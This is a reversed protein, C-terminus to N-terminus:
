ATPKVPVVAAAIKRRRWVSYEHLLIFLVIILLVILLLMGIFASMDMSWGAIEIFVPLEVVVESVEGGTVTATATKEKGGYSVKVTYSGAPLEDSFTGDAATTGKIPTGELMVEAGALGQGRQGVVKVKIVGIKDVIVTNETVTVGTKTFDVTMGKWKHVTVDVTGLPVETIAVTGDSGVVTKIETGDKKKLTIDAGAMPTDFPTKVAVVMDYVDTTILYEVSVTAGAEFKGAEIRISQEAIVGVGEWEVVVKYEGEPAQPVEVPSEPSRFGTMEEITDKNMVLRVVGQEDPKHKTVVKDPWYITVTIPDYSSLKEGDADRIKLLAGYVRTKITASNPYETGSPSFWRPVMEDALSDYIDLARPIIGAFDLFYTDRWYIKIEYPGDAVHLVVRGYEDTFAFTSPHIQGQPIALVLMDKLPNGTWDEVTLKIYGWELEICEEANNHEEGFEFWGSELTEIEATMVDEPTLDYPELMGEYNQRTKFQYSLWRCVNGDVDFKWAIVGGAVPLSEGNPLTISAGKEPKIVAKGDADTLVGDEWDILTDYVDVNASGDWDKGWVELYILQGELPVLNSHFDHGYVVVCFGDMMLTHVIKAAGSWYTMNWCDGAYWTNNGRFEYWVGELKKFWAPYYECPEDTVKSATHNWNVRYGFISHDVVYNVSTTIDECWPTGVVGPTGWKEGALVEVYTIESGFKIDVDTYASDRPQWVPVTVVIVGDATGDDEDLTSWAYAAAQGVWGETVINDYNDPDSIFTLNLVDERILTLNLNPAMYLGANSITYVTLTQTWTVLEIKPKGECAAVGKITLIPHTKHLGDDEDWWTWDYDTSEFGEVVEYEGTTENFIYTVDQDPRPLEVTYNFVLVGGHFVMWKYKAGAIFLHPYEKVYQRSTYVFKAEPIGNFHGTDGEGTLNIIKYTVRVDPECCGPPGCTPPELQYEDDVLAVVVPYVGMDTKIETLINYAHDVAWLDFSYIWVPRKGIATCTGAAQLDEAYPGIDWIVDEHLDGLFVLINNDKTGRTYPTHTEDNADNYDGDGNDDWPGTYVVLTINGGEFPVLPVKEFSVVGDCDSRSWPERWKEKNGWYYILTANLGDLVLDCDDWQTLTINVDGIPFEFVIAEVVNDLVEFTKTENKPEIWVGKWLLKLSYKGKPIKDLFVVGDGVSTVHADLIPTGGEDYLRVIAHPYDELTLPEGCMDILQINAQYVEAMVVFYWVPGLYEHRIKFCDEGITITSNDEWTVDIWPAEEYFINAASRWYVKIEYEFETVNYPIPLYGVPFTPAEETGPLRMPPWPTDFPPLVVYTRGDMYYTATTTTLNFDYGKMTLVILARDLPQPEPEKDEVEIVVPRITTKIENLLEEEPLETARYFPLETTNLKEVAVTVGLYNVYITYNIGYLEPATIDPLWFYVYNLPSVGYDVRNGVRPLAGERPAWGNYYQGDRVAIWRGDIFAKFEIKVPTAYNYFVAETCDLLKIAKAKTFAYDVVPGFKNNTADKTLNYSGKWIGESLVNSTVNLLTVGNSITYNFKLVDEGVQIKIAKSTDQHSVGLLWYVEKVLSTNFIDKLYFCNAEDPEVRTDSINLYKIQKSGPEIVSVANTRNGWAEWIMTYTDNGPADWELPVDAKDVLYVQFYALDEAVKKKFYLPVDFGVDWAQFYLSWRHGAYFYLTSNIYDDLDDWTLPSSWHPDFSWNLLFWKDYEHILITFNVVATASIPTANCWDNEDWWLKGEDDTTGRAVLIPDGGVEFAVFVVEADALPENSNWLIQIYWKTPSATARPTALPLAILLALVLLGVLIKRSM